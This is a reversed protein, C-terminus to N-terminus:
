LELQDRVMYLAALTRAESLEPHQVLENLRDLSWYLTELPEPEDGPLPQEYLDRALVLHTTFSLYGPAITMPRLRQLQRAGLGIEEMIERNAADEISEGDHMVGKPFLLEYRDTGVAYERIMIVQNDDTIPVIMVAGAGPANIREYERQVGNSFQLQVAEISFLRSRTIEATHTIHPKKNM